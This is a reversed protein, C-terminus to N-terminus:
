VKIVEVIINNPNRLNPIMSCLLSKLRYFSHFAYLYKERLIKFGAITLEAKILEPTYIRVHANPNKGESIMEELNENLPVSVIFHGNKKLVRYVETLAKFTNHPQIHEMVELALVLDFTKDKYPLKLITGVQFEGHPFKKKARIVSEKSIDVGYIKVNKKQQTILNEVIYSGFGIDLMKSKNNILSVVTNVRDWAMPNIKKTIGVANLKDWLNSTNLDLIEPYKIDYTKILSELNGARALTARRHELQFPSIKKLSKM